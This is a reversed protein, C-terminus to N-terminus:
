KRVMKKKIRGVYFSTATKLLIDQLSHFKQLKHGSVYKMKSYILNLKKVEMHALWRINGSSINENVFCWVSIQVFISTDRAFEILQVYKIIPYTALSLSSSVSDMDKKGAGRPYSILRFHSFIYSCIFSILCLNTQFPSAAEHGYLYLYIM